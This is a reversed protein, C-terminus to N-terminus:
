EGGYEELTLHTCGLPPMFPLAGQLRLLDEGFDLFSTVAEIVSDLEEAEVCMGRHRGDGGNFSGWAAWMLRPPLRLQLPYYGCYCYYRM